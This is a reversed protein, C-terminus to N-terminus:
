GATMEIALEFGTVRGTWAELGIGDGNQGVWFLNDACESLESGEFGKIGEIGDIGGGARLEGLVNGVGEARQVFGPFWAVEARGVSSDAAV